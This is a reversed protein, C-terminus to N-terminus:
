EGVWSKLHRSIGIEKQPNLHTGFLFCTGASSRYFWYHHHHQRSPPCLAKGALTSIRGSAEYSGTHPYFGVLLTADAVLHLYMPCVYVCVYTWTCAPMNTGVSHKWVLITGRFSEVTGLTVKLRRLFWVLHAISLVLEDDPNLGLLKWFRYWLESWEWLYSGM